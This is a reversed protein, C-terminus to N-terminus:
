HQLTFVLFYQDSLFDHAEVEVYGADALERRVVDPGLKHSAPPGRESELRFDVIALRGRPSFKPALAKFYAVRDSIHHYTDVVLVLDTGDDVNAQEFPTLRGKLNTLGEKAAREDMFRVMSEEVDVGLVRGEPVARALRVAFYGTGAGVDAVVADPPLKLAAIVDDPKQWADREPADFRASWAAADDFRHPMGEGHKGHGEHKGHQQHKDVAGPDKSTMAQNEAATQSPAPTPASSACGVFFLAAFLSTRLM